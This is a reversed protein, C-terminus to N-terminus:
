NKDKNELSCLLSINQQGHQHKGQLAELDDVFDLLSEYLELKFVQTEHEPFFRHGINQTNWSDGL